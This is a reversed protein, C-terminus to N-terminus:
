GHRWGHCSGIMRRDTCTAAFPQAVSIVKRGFDMGLTVIPVGAKEAINRYGSKLGQVKGRTGEPALGLKFSPNSAFHEAMQDVVGHTSSRNVSIAGLARLIPGLPWWFLSHKALFKLDYLGLDERICLALFFDRWSTHPGAIIVYQPLHHPFSDRYEWGKKALRGKLFPLKM